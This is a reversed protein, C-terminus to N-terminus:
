GSSTRLPLLNEHKGRVFITLEAPAVVLKLWEQLDEGEVKEKELSLISMFFTILRSQIPFCFSHLLVAHLGFFFNAFYDRVQLM